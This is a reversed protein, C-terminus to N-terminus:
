VVTDPLCLACASGFHPRAQLLWTCGAPQSVMCDVTQRALGGCFRRIGHLEQTILKLQQYHGQATVPAGSALHVEASLRAADSECWQLM